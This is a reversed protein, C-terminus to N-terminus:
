INQVCDIVPIDTVAYYLLFWIVFYIIYRIYIDTLNDHKTTQFSYFTYINPMKTYFMNVEFIVTSIFIVFFSNNFFLKSLYLSNSITKM